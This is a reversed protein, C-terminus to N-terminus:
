ETAVRIEDILFAGGDPGISVLYLDSVLRFDSDTFPVKPFTQPPQGPITVTLDFTKPANPGVAFALDFRVWVDRPLPLNVASGPSATLIGQPDVQIYPGTQFYKSGPNAYDRFSFYMASPNAAPMKLQFSVRLKGTAVGVPYHLFPFFSRAENRGEVLMLSHKGVAADTDTVVIQHGLEAPGPVLEGSHVPAAGALEHEYTWVFGGPDMLPTVPAHPTQQPLATWAPDGYLGIKAMDTQQFGLKLAPSDPRLRFDCRAADVFGPDALVSGTDHGKEQWQAFTVASLGEGSFGPLAASDPGAWYVNNRSVQATPSYGTRMFVGNSGAEDVINREFVIPHPNYRVQEDWWKSGGIVGSKQCRAFINDRVVSEHGGNGGFGQVVDHVINGAFLVGATGQDPYIGKAGHGLPDHYVDHIWNYCVRADKQWGLLYIGGGDDLLYNMVHHVHNYEVVNGDQYYGAKQNASWGWGVSIGTYDGYCVENHTIQNYAACPGTLIGVSGHFVQTLDHIFCNDIVNREIHDFAGRPSWGPRKGPRPVEWFLYVGGGGLDHLHCQRVTNDTCGQLLAVAHAGVRTVECNEFTAHRLGIAAIAGSELVVDPNEVGTPCRAQGGSISRGQPTWDAEAFRIGQFRLYEVYAGHEPDGKFQVLSPVTPVLVTATRLDEGPLPIYRLIGTQRDLYWEGPADLCVPANEIYYRSRSRMIDMQPETVISNTEPHFEKVRYQRSLWSQYAVIMTDPSAVMAATVDDDAYYFGDAQRATYDPQRILGTTHFFGQNPSRARTARRGNVFLQRFYLKGTRVEPVEARWVGKGEPQWNGIRLGGSITAAGPTESRYTIPAQETGSDEPTFRLPETIAHLGAGLVVEIPGPLPGAQKLERIKGQAAPIDPCEALVRPGGPLRCTVTVPAAAVGGVLICAMSASLLYPTLRKNAFM